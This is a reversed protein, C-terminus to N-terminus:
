FLGKRLLMKVPEQSAFVQTKSMQIRINSLILFKTSPAQSKCVNKPIVIYRNRKL